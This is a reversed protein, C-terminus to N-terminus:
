VVNGLAEDLRAKFVELSPAEVAERPLRNWHRVVRVPFFRVDLRFRGEKLKFGNGRTRNGCERMFLGEGDKRYAILDGWLRRKELSFLGLERLRDEYSLHELGRILKTARTQVRELLEMDRRYQPGWLQICYELHPRVLASYLPLIVERSRSTVGRKICGLVHNAKQAALACQRSMNLKEDILVGLDEEEPSSEIWEKGLRYNHKPNGQGMHLVKCKAKNFKMCNAHAWRELRDLDRQIADRGELMDVVGCLKTDDAFKSLTCEIVIMEGKAAQKAERDALENGRELESNVKQHAKIHMIAVKEPLQVAELLKMIEEAHKINKGQSNLLGREKWIAGHAHVVGFAYKSDTYINVAKGQALELARTLAIIEAKQASTSMPLPGSEIIEQSTTIAYGAHRKGSLVYSSGDTFWNETNEMPSDRLDSRSSYTTEITELCDHHVPEGTNGSLFSAPNVINTVIIEVDDQEVMIAQYKLFRQPSLWHGGKAELVVSVTHSVLVTMKQGLTFKRAEQINLVVAAVARLCGPWGKATADLQKSFYAVARRYPGLDQALIGLAIGQKEHSFLFFPKSVDPLGLAPASMLAKKLLKFAQITEKNWKLHKQETTTLAYLPKVLLGYNYIWLRCWGTMGLFTRLEKVTQPRPTQCITEKRTQGLTRQGASIEYGLYIVKRQMVQAKKKSVRYGQLGLFNLLSVTWTMCADETKTAILIDDVYQLLKGEEPPAEWSELDKALQNGFITPSNKFGQPLVTWTLQTKRGRKPNEWEFAFIKQSSKHLPLCFFADKLDLVTFWTLEPTLVTLLTYPNAVVPYLDETIKNIARLDQVVRYSGDPKRVPLIPTNFDSECERLLGLQLFKEIVPRIGERDEKRLPYQKIRVPQRGEKLKVEVPTANKAKGPVDTAWVGPYVQNAIEESIKGEIPINTLSLSMIQIYQQDNVELTIEGKEFKIIAGLQELLDRGLLARPSNPMYLFRHIGWQKGLKYRLPECFYVKESQGTAGKVMIYDNGLPRLAQNLVSYTAGTDVLFEVKKQKKGLKM